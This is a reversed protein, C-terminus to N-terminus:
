PEHRTLAPEVVLTVGEGDTRTHLRGPMAAVRTRAREETEALLVLTMPVAYVDEDVEVVDDLGAVRALTADDGTLDDCIQAPLDQSARLADTADGLVHVHCPTLYREM